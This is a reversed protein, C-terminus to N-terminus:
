AAGPTRLAAFQTMRRTTFGIREYVRRASDNTEAVHLFPTIGEDLLRQAVAVTVAEGYGRRRADPHTSVASVETLGPISIRRGAMALLM